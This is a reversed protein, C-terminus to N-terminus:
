YAVFTQQVDCGTTKTYDSKLMTPLIEHQYKLQSERCTGMIGGMLVDWSLEAGLVAAPCSM